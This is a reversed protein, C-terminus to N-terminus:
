KQTTTKTSKKEVEAEEREAKAIREIEADEFTADENSLQDDADFELDEPTADLEMMIESQTTEINNQTNGGTGQEKVNAYSFSCFFSMLLLLSLKMLGGFSHDDGIRNKALQNWFHKNKESEFLM